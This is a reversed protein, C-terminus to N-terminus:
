ADEGRAFAWRTLVWDNGRVEQTICCCVSVTVRDQMLLDWAPDNDVNGLKRHIRLRGM